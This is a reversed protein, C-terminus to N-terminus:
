RIGGKFDRRALLGGFEDLTVSKRSEFLRKVPCYQDKMTLRSSDANHSYKFDFIRLESKGSISLPLVGSLSGNAAKTIPMPVFATDTKM